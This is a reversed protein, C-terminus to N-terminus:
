RPMKATALQDTSSPDHAMAFTFGLLLWLLTLVATPVSRGDKTTKPKVRSRALGVRWGFESLALLVIALIPFVIWISFMWSLFQNVM